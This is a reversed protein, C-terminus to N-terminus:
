IRSLVRITQVIFPLIPAGLLSLYTNHGHQISMESLFDAGSDSVKGPLPKGNDNTQVYSVGATNLLYNVFDIADALEWPCKPGPLPYLEKIAALTAFGNPIADLTNYYHWSNPFMTNYMNAFAQNGATPAAFTFPMLTRRTSGAESLQYRLWPALVSALCGGLSHGTVVITADEPTTQIFDLLTLGNWTMGTLDALGDATGNAIVAQPTPPYAWPTVEGADLDEYLDVLLALSFYPYTGRIAIAYIDATDDKAVYMLNGTTQGPGWVLKWQGKTAYGPQSLYYSIEDPPDAYTIAALTMTFQGGEFESSGIKQMPSNGEFM